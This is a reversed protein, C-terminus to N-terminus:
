KTDNIIKSAASEHLDYIQFILQLSLLPFSYNPFKTTIRVNSQPRQITIDIKEEFSHGSFCIVM